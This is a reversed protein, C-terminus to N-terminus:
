SIEKTRVNHNGTHIAYFPENLRFFPPDPSEEELDEFEM